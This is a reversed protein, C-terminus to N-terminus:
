FKLEKYYITIANDDDECPGWSDNQYVNVKTYIGQVSARITIYVNGNVPKEKNDNYLKYKSINNFLTKELKSLIIDYFYEVGVMSIYDEYEKFTM